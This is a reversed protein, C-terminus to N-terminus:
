SLCTLVKERHPPSSSPTQGLNYLLDMVPGLKIPLLPWHEFAPSTGCLVAGQAGCFRFTGKGGLRTGKWWLGQLCSSYWNGCLKESVEESFANVTFPVVCDMLVFWLVNQDSPSSESRVLVFYCAENKLRGNTVFYCCLTNPPM